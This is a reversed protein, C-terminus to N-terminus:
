VVGEKNYVPKNKRMNTPDHLGASKPPAAKTRRREQKKRERHVPSCREFSAGSSWPRRSVESAPKRPRHCGIMHRWLGSVFNNSRVCPAPCM